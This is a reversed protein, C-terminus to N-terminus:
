HVRRFFNYKKFKDKSESISTTPATGVKAVRAFAKRFLEKLADEDDFEEMIRLVNESVEDPDSDDVNMVFSMTYEDDADPGKTWLTRRPFSFKGDEGGVEDRILLSVQTLYQYSSERGKPINTGPRLILKSIEFQVYKRVEDLENFGAMKKSSFEDSIVEWEKFSGESDVLMYIEAIPSGGFSIVVEQPSRKKFDLPIKNILDEFNVYIGSSEIDIDSPAYDDDITYEWNYWHEHQLEQALTIIAGGELIGERKLHMYVIDKIADEKDDIEVDITRATQEFEETSVLSPSGAFSEINISMSIVVNGKSVEYSTSDFYKGVFYENVDEDLYEITRRVSDQFASIKFEDEPIEINFEARPTIYYHGGGEDEVDVSTIMTSSYRANFRDKIEDVEEQIAEINSTELSDEFSFDYGPRGQAEVDLWEETAQKVSDGVDEYSGGFREWESLNVIYDESSELVKKIEKEQKEKTFKKIQSYLNPIDKGYTRTSPIALYVNLEKNYIKKLRQRSVPTIEGTGRDSDLFFEEARDEVLDLLEQNKADEDLGYVAKMNELDENRVVYAVPGHGHAEAVACKFYSDNPSHCSSINNFDSMRMVDIPHRTYIISYATNITAAEEPNERYYKSSKNWWDSLDSYLKKGAPLVGGPVSAEQPVLNGLRKSIDQAKGYLEESKKRYIDRVEERSKDRNQEANKRPTFEEFEDKAKVYKGMLKSVKQLFKGIKINKKIVKIDNELARARWKDSSLFKEAQKIELQMRDRKGDEGPMDLMFFTLTGTSLDPIFDNQKAFDLFTEYQKDKALLPEVIRMKDGFINNFSLDSPKLEHLIDDLLEVQEESVEKLTNAVSENYFEKWKRM